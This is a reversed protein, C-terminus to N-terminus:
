QPVKIADPAPATGMNHAKVAERQLTIAEVKILHQYQLAEFRGAAYALDAGVLATAQRSTLLAHAEERISSKIDM